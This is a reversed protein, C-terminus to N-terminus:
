RTLKTFFDLIFEALVIFKCHRFNAPTQNLLSILKILVSYHRNVIEMVCFPCEMILHKVVTLVDLLHTFTGIALTESKAFTTSLYDLLWFSSSIPASSSSLKESIYEIHLPRKPVQDPEIDIRKMSQSLREIETQDNAHPTLDKVKAPSGLDLMKFGRGLPISTVFKAYQSISPMQRSSLHKFQTFDVIFCFSHEKQPEPVASKEIVPPEIDILLSNLLDDTDFNPLQFTSKPEAVKMKGVADSLNQSNSVEQRDFISGVNGVPKLPTRSKKAQAPLKPKLKPVTTIKPTIPKQRQSLVAVSVVSSNIAREEAEEMRISSEIDDNERKLSVIEGKLQNLEKQKAKMDNRQKASFSRAQEYKVRWVPLVKTETKARKVRELLSDIGDGPRKFSQSPSQTQQM